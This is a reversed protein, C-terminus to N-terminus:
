SSVERGELCTMRIGGQRSFFGPKTPLTGEGRSAHRVLADKGCAFEEFRGVQRDIFKM